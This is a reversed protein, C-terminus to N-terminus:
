GAGVSIRDPCGATTGSWRRLHRWTVVVGVLEHRRSELAEISVCQDCTQWWWVRHAHAQNVEPIQSLVRVYTEDLSKPLQDLTRRINVPFCDRLVELQCFV